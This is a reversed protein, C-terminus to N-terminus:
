HFCNVSRLGDAMATTQLSSDCDVLHVNGLDWLNLYRGDPSSGMYSPNHPPSQILRRECEFPGTQNTVAPKAPHSWSLAEQQHLHHLQVLM